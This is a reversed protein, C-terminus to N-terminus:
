GRPDGSVQGSVSPGSERDQCQFLQYLGHKPQLWLKCINKWEGKVLVSDRPSLVSDGRKIGCQLDKQAAKLDEPSAIAPM